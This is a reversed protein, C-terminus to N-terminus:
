RKILKDFSGHLHMAIHIVVRLEIVHIRQCLADDYAVDVSLKFLDWAIVQEAVAAAFTALDSSSLGFTKIKIFKHFPSAEDM